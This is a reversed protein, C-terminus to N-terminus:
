DMDLLRCVNVRPYLHRRETFTPTSPNAFVDDSETVQKEVIATLLTHERNNSKDRSTDRLEASVNYALGFPLLLVDQVDASGQVRIVAQKATLLPSM